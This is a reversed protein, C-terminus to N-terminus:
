RILGTLWAASTSCTDIMHPNGAHVLEDLLEQDLTAFQHRLAAVVQQRELLTRVVLGAQVAGEPGEVRQLAGGADDIERGHSPRQM